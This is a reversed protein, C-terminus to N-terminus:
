KLNILGTLHKIHLQSVRNRENLKKKYNVIHLQLQCPKEWKIKNQLKCHTISGEVSKQLQGKEKIPM